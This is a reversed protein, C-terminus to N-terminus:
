RTIVTLSNSDSNTIYIKYFPALFAVIVDNPTHGAPVTSIVSNTKLDIISINNADKNTTFAYGINNDVAIDRPSTDVPITAVVKKYKPNIVSVSNSATNTVYVKGMYYDLRHPDNGVPITATVKNTNADIISVSDSGGNAVYLQAALDNAIIGHPEKGVHITHIVKNTNGNIASVTNSATNVIYVTAVAASSRDNTENQFIQSLGQPTSGISISEIVKNTKSDIVSVSDSGSNTVYVKGSNNSAIIDIPNDGVPITAIISDTNVDIVSVTNSDTNAVYVYYVQLNTDADPGYNDNQNGVNIAAAAIGHPDAGVLITSIVKDTKCDIVSVSDSGSNTVYLKGLVFEISHPRSGVHVTDAIIDVKTADVSEIYFAISSLLSAPLIFICICIRRIM